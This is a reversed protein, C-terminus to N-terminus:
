TYLVVARSCLMHKRTLIFWTPWLTEISQKLFPLHHYGLIRFTVKYAFNRSWITGCCGVEEKLAKLHLYSSTSQKSCSDHYSFATRVTWDQAKKWYFDRKKWMQPHLINFKLEEKTQFFYSSATSQKIISRWILGCIFYMSGVALTIGYNNLQKAKRSLNYLFASLHELRMLIKNNTIM